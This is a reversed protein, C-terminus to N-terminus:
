CHFIHSRVRQKCILTLALNSKLNFSAGFHLQTQTHRHTRPCASLCECRQLTRQVLKNYNCKCKYDLSFRCFTIQDHLTLLCASLPTGKDSLPIFNDHCGTIPLRCLFWYCHMLIHISLYFPYRCITLLPDGCVLWCSVCINHEICKPDTHHSIRPLPPM